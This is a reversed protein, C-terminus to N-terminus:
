PEVLNFWFEFDDLLALLQNLADADSVEVEGSALEEDVTAQRLILRDLATRTLTVQADADPAARGVVHNLVGHTLEVAVQEGTDTFDFSLTLTLDGAKEGNLRM